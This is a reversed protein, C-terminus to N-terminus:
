PSGSPPGPLAARVAATIRDVDGREAAPLPAGVSARRRAASDPLRAARIPRGARAHAGALGELALAVARPDSTRRAAALGERHLALAARADGRQEAAFGLEALILATGNAAEFRRNWALWPRLCEEARAPDGQRRASLALGVEATEQAPRDGHEVALRRAEEHLADARAYDKRLLAIRGLESRRVSAEAWLGLEGAIRLGERHRAEAATYDGAAEAPRGLLKGAHLLGWGDGVRGFLELAAEGDRRAAALDGRVSHQLGRVALAAAVDWPDGLARVDELVRRILEEGWELSGFLTTAFGLFWGPWARERPDGLRECSLSSSPVAGDAGAPEGSMLRLATHRALLRAHEPEQRVAATLGLALATWRGAETLRGRLFWYWTLARVLRRASRADGVAAATELAARFNAAEADLRRLWQRQEPGRLLPDAREALGTYYRAHALRLEEYETAAGADGAEGPRERLRELCYDTVSELLRYRPGGPEAHAVVLSRDVLRSLLDLVEAAGVGDGACLAEAAELACGDAQLALRRLVTQEAPTLLEWSWDIVARLTQQRRPADRPGSTLLGFRDDLRDALGSLGLTRVRTSALELALPIGDVRRCVAAVTQADGETLSFGPSTAAARAAFLRVADSRLVDAATAGPRSLELPRVLWLREGTLRLSERSTALVRLGPAAGLL